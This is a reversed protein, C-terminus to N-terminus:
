RRESHQAAQVLRAELSTAPTEVVPTLRPASRRRSPHAAFRPSTHHGVVIAAVGGLAWLILVILHPVAGHGNFFATSRLLNAGAGPPLWQGIDNVADPLMEPASTVASFPNGVFVLLAASLGLGAPGILAVLGATTSSMAFLLLAIAAWTAWGEHPLAGLFIQAILYTGAGAVAAVIGLAALQRWAPRLGVVVAAIAAIIVSCITLPLLSSSLVQGHPDDKSAPVVDDSAFTSTSGHALEQGVTNLLQAVTPSAASAELVTLQGPRIVFAGYITRDRIAGRAATEDAYLHLDFGGPEAKALASAVPATSADIGVVGVPLNRPAIRAAPWAFALVALVIVAPLAISVILLQRWPPHAALPNTM